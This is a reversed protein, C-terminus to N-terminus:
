WTCSRDEGRIVLITCKRSFETKTPIFLTVLTSSRHRERGHFLRFIVSDDQLYHMFIHGKLKAEIGEIVALAATTTITYPIGNQITDLRILVLSSARRDM